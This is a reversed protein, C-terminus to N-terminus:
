VIHECVKMLVKGLLNLGQWQDPDLARPDDAALGIGYIKDKPSAESLTKGWLSRLFKRMDDNQTFKLYNAQYVVLERHQHWVSQDFNAVKRGLKKQEAPDPEALILAATEYDGFLHAKAYMMYQEGCNFHTQYLESWFQKPQLPNVYWQSLIGNKEEAKWFFVFNNQNM